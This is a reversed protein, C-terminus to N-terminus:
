MCKIESADSLSVRSSFCTRLLSAFRHSPGRHRPWGGAGTGWGGGGERTRGQMAAEANAQIQHLLTLDPVAEAETAVPAEAPLTDAAAATPQRM